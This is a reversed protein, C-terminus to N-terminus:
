IVPVFSNCDFTHCSISVDEGNSWARWGSPNELIDKVFEMPKAIEGKRYNVADDFAYDDTYVGECKLNSFQGNLLASYVHRLTWKKPMTKLPKIKALNFPSFIRVGKHESRYIEIGETVFSDFGVIGVSECFAWLAKLDNSFRANIFNTTLLNGHQGHEAKLTYEICAKGSTLANNLDTIRWDDFGKWRTVKMNETECYVTGDLQNLFEDMEFMKKIYV